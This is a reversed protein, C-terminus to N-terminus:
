EDIKSKIDSLSTKGKDNNGNILIIPKEPTSDLPVTATDRYVAWNTIELQTFKM